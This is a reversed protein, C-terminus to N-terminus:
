SSDRKSGLSRPRDSMDSSSSRPGSSAGSRRTPRMWSRSPRMPAACRARPALSSSRPPSAPAALAVRLDTELSEFRGVFDVAIQNDITYLRRDSKLNGPELAWDVFPPRVEAKRTEWFYASIAKDWPNREFGFKFFRNWRRAGIRDKALQASMHNFYLRRKGRITRYTRTLAARGQMSHLYAAIVAPSTSEYNRPEHGAEPPGIPTVIASAGAVQSLVVEVSTGATKPVKMFIFEHEFSVIM